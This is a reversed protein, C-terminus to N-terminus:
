AGYLLKNIVTKVIKLYNALDRNLNGSHKYRAKNPIKKIKDGEEDYAEITVIDQTGGKWYDPTAYFERKTKPNHWNWNGTQSDVLFKYGAIKKHKLKKAMAKQDEYESDRDETLSNKGFYRLYEEKLKNM